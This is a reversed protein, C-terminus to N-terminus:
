GKLFEADSSLYDQAGQGELWERAADDGKLKYNWYALAFIKILDEHRERLPNADLKGRTGNYVMHDGGHKILAFKEPSSSHEYVAMRQKYGFGEIPSDDETGTMHLLPLTISGYIEADPEDGVLHRIPVPSYLIGAKFREEKMSTLRGNVDPFMQGAMVQSTMSGFSHGSMGMNEFDLLKGFEANEPEKAWEELADLAFPVDMFRDITTERPIKVKRLIDWPHGPKGEWLSSDTGFHTLHAIAYGYSALFRSLFAAGDRNGGFGHSWIIVPMKELDHGVPLYIKFPVPRSAGGATVRSHDLFEGRKLITKFPGSEPSPKWTVPLPTQATNM